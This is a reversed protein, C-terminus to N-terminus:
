AGLEFTGNNPHSNTSVLCLARYPMVFAICHAIAFNNCLLHSSSDTSVPFTSASTLTYSISPYPLVLAVTLFLVACENVGPNVMVGTNLLNSSELQIVAKRRSGVKVISRSVVTSAVSTSCPAAVPAHSAQVCSGSTALPPPPCQSRM